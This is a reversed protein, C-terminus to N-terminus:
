MVMRKEYSQGAFSDNKDVTVALAPMHRSGLRDIQNCLACDRHSRDVAQLADGCLGIHTHPLAPSLLDHTRRDSKDRPLEHRLSSGPASPNGIGSEFNRIGSKCAPSERNM